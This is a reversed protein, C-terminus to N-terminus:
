WTVTRNVIAYQEASSMRTYIRTTELSAHGLIDALLVLNYEKELFKKAYMHRFSYPYITDLSVSKYQKACDKLLKAMGRTSLTEGNKNRFITGSTIGEIRLWGLLENQLKKPIYIRRIKGGKSNVDMWGTEIHDVRFKIIESPRAGTCAITRVIFYVKYYGDKKLQKTFYIYDNYTVVNELFHKRQVRVCKLALSGKHIYELYRNMAQIRQNVTTPCYNDILYQRFALLSNKNLTKYKNQFTEVTRSYSRITAESLNNRKMWKCFNKIERNNVDIEKGDEDHVAAEETIVIPEM